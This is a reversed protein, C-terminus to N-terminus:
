SLTQYGLPGQISDSRTNNRRMFSPVWPFLKELEKGIASQNYQKDNIGFKAREIAEMIDERSVCDAGRRAALLAAENVINALDAGVLGQTLSAVLNCVLDLDEELPVGRLHVALIKRRGDEDPEGVLIKRSFRGPRCLAPDLAEPRNTAAVVIISLDSDFGDMETLLQNLTQDREDNFSRGRRGGVADLEDIFIISPANKRAVSFLDRIRAAGRGVFMEVFESASVSFFPVGAEGAVARALLTKGTGPPGVLLVGRPLKAGLKSFNIAGQLCLVIEMLEVKAGDVGEVDNFGVLQNSPKRKKAPSNAASLQRYLLWMIPTLPIWLSLMTILLSRMSMLASQPASGYATGKERMLSLLYGEDHDIKRTSFEWLPASSSGKAKSIKSFVNRGGKNSDIDKNEEIVATSENDEGTQVNKLNWLNTNYYIRRTGEEFQVKTVTGGQLNTILDSYPVVKPSTTATLRLFLYCLGLVVSISTSLTVRRTNKRLFKGFDNLMSKVSVRKLRRSLLRLRPRLRLSFKRRIDTSETKNSHTEIDGKENVLSRIQSKVFRYKLGLLPVYSSSTFCSNSLSCSQNKLIRFPDCNGFHVMWKKYKCFRASCSQNKFCRLSEFNGIHHNWKKYRSNSFGLLSVYNSTFCSNTLSCSQNKFSSLSESNNGIHPKWKKHTILLRDNSVLPFSAM